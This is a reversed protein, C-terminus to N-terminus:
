GSSVVIYIQILAYCINCVSSFIQEIFKEEIINNKVEEVDLTNLISQSYLPHRNPDQIIM